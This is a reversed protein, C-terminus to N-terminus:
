KYENAKQFRESERGECETETMIERIRILQLLYVEVKGRKTWPLM